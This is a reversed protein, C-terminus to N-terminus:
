IEIKILKIILYYISTIILNIFTLKVKYCTSISKTFKNDDKNKRLKPFKINSLNARITGEKIIVKDFYQGGKLRLM